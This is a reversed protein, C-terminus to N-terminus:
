RVKSCTVHLSSLSSGVALHIGDLFIGNLSNAGGFAITAAGTLTLRPGNAGCGAALVVNQPVTLNSGLTITPNAGLSQAIVVQKDSGSGARGLAGRLTIGTCNTLNEGSTDDSTSNVVLGTCSTGNVTAITKSDEPALAPSLGSIGAKVVYNSLANLGDSQILVEDFTAVGNIAQAYLKGMLPNTTDASSLYVLGDYDVVNGGQGTIQVTANFYKNITVSGNITLNVNASQNIPGSTAKGLAVPNGNAQATLRMGVGPKNIKLNVFTIVGTDDSLSGVVNASGNQTLTLDTNTMIDQLGLKVTGPYQSAKLAVGKSNFLKVAASFPAETLQTLSGNPAPTTFQISGQLLLSVDATIAVGSGNDISFRLVYSGIQTLFLGRGAYDITDTNGFQKAASTSGSVGLLSAGGPGSQITAFVIGSLNTVPQNFKDFLKVVPQTPFAVDPDLGGTQPLTVTIKSLAETTATAEASYTSDTVTGDAKVRYFYPTNYALNADDYTTVNAGVTGIQAWASSANPRREIIYGVERGSTDQWSLSIKSTSKSTAVLNAPGSVLETDASVTYASDTSAGRAKVRFQYVLEPFFNNESFTVSNAAITGVVSWSNSGSIQREVVYATERASNDVWSLSYKSSSIETVTLSSPANLVDVAQSTAYASDGSGNKAKVRYQYSNEPFFTTENFSTTNATLNGVVSWSNTGFVQREVVYGTEESSNDQWTLNFTNTDPNWTLNANSPATPPGASTQAFSYLSKRSSDIAAGLYHVKGDPGAEIQAAFVEGGSGAAVAVDAPAFTISNGSVTGELAYGKGLAIAVWVKGNPAVTVDGEGAGNYAGNGINTTLTTWQNTAPNFRALGLGAGGLFTDWIAYASGDSGCAVKHRNGRYVNDTDGPQLTAVSQWQGNIRSRAAIGNQWQAVIHVADNPGVCMQPAVDQAGDQRDGDGVNFINVISKSDDTSEGFYWRPRGGTTNYQGSFYTKNTAPSFAVAPQDLIGGPWKYGLGQETVISLNADLRAFWGFFGVSNDQARWAVALNNDPRASARPFKTNNDSSDSDTLIRYAAGPNDSRAFLMTNSPVGAGGNGSASEGTFIVVGDPRAKADASWLTQGDRDHVRVQSSWTAADATLLLSLSAVLMVLSSLSALGLKAGIKTKKTVFTKM